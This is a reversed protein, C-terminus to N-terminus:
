ENYFKVGKFILFSTFIASKTEVGAEAEIAAAKCPREKSSLVGGNKSLVAAKM